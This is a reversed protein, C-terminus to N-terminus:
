RKGRAERRQQQDNALEDRELVLGLRLVDGTRLVSFLEFSRLHGTVLVITALRMPDADVTIATTRM